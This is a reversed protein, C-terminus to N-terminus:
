EHRLAEVINIRAIQRAPAISALLGVLLGLAGAVALRVPSVVYGAPVGAAHFLPMMARGLYLGALIGLGTGATALLVAEALVMEVVQARTVGLSRLVGIERTREMVGIILTNTIAVVSPLGVVAVLLYMVSTVKGIVDLLLGFLDQTRDLAFQPYRSAIARLQREVAARDADPELYVELVTDQIVDFDRALNAQSIYATLVSTGVMDNAIAVVRYETPGNPTRLVVPDGVKIGLQAEFQVNAIVCRCQSLAALATEPDGRLFSLGATLPIAAPDIGRLSVQKRGAGPADVAGQGWRITVIREVGKLARLEEALKYEASTQMGGLRSFMYEAKMAQGVAALMYRDLSEIVSSMALIIALSLTLAGVTLAARGPERLLNERALRTMSGPLIRALIAGLVATIPGLIAPTIMLLGALFGVAGLGTAQTDGTLLALSAALICAAGAVALWGIARHSRVEGGHRQIARVPPVRSAAFVPILSAVVTVGIGLGATTLLISLTVVPLGPRADLGPLVPTAALMGCTMLYGLSVGLVTGTVGEILSEVLFIGTVGAGTAGLARLMGTERRREAAATRFTNFIILGAMFLALVNIVDYMGQSARVQAVLSADPPIANVEFSDDLEGAIAAEAAARGAADVASLNAHLTNIRGPQDYLRQARALPLFAEHAGPVRQTQVGVIPLRTVGAATLVPFRDGVSLHFKDALRKDIVVASSDGRELWRGQEVIPSYLARAAEPDVGTIFITTATTLSSAPDLLQPPYIASTRLVGTVDRVGELAAIRVALQAPFSRAAERTITVDVSQTAAQLGSRFTQVVNPVSANAGMVVTVALTIALVTLTSRLRRAALNRWALSYLSRM